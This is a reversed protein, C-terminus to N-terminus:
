ARPSLKVRGISLEREGLSPPVSFPLNGVFVRLTLDLPASRIWFSAPSGLALPERVAISGRGLTRNIRRLPESM